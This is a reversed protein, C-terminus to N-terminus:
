TPTIFLINLTCKVQMFQQRFSSFCNRILVSIDTSHINESLLRQKWHRRFRRIVSRVSSEDISPTDDMVASFDSDSESHEIIDVQDALTIMSYPVVSSPLLAHTHGCERCIVRCVHLLLVSDGSKVSRDYYGHISLCGSHGCTCPIRCFDTSNIVDDYTKQTIPTRNDVLLTIMLILIPIHGTITAPFWVKSPSPNRGHNNITVHRHYCFACFLVIM